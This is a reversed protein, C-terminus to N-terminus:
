RVCRVYGATARGDDYVYGGSFSVVWVGGSGGLNRSASWYYSWKTNPFYIRDIAPSYLTRDTISALEKIAPLRWGGGALSLTQCYSIAQAHTKSDNDDQQQWVLGTALDTVTGNGNHQFGAADVQSILGLLVVALLGKNFM